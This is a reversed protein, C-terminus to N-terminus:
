DLGDNLFGDTWDIPSYETNNIVRNDAFNNEVPPNLLRESRFFKQWGSQEPPIVADAYPVLHFRHRVLEIILCGADQEDPSKYRSDVKGMRQKYDMKKEISLKKGIWEYMRTCLQECTKLDLGRIQGALIFKQMMFILETAKRDYVDKATAYNGNADKHDSVKLDSCGGIGDVQMIKDSWEKTIISGLGMGTGNIDVALNEPAVGAERCLRKAQAVIQYDIPDASRADLKLYHLYGKDDGFDLLWKGNVSKGLDAFRLVCSDGGYSFAPDLGGVKIIPVDPSWQPKLKAKGRDITLASLVTRSVDEPPWFGRTMRWFAHSDEGYTLKDQEISEETFLFKSLAAKKVPDPEYIAPSKYCDFYLCCGLKTQWEEDYDPDVSGWGNIPTALIGHPDFQSNSNGLVICKFIPSKDWNSFADVFAPSVDPGEDIIVLLGEKPHRGILNSARNNSKNKKGDTQGKLLAVAYIGHITDKKSIIIKPPASTYLHGPMPIGRHTPSDHFNKIYGFIRNDLDSITTSGVLVTRQTINCRFFHYALRGADNSKGTNAGSAWVVIKEPECFKQFRRETWDNWTIQFEPWTLADAKKLHKCANGQWNLRYASLEIDIPHILPWYADAYDIEFVTNGDEDKNDVIKYEPYREYYSAIHHPIM